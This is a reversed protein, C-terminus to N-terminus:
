HPSPTSSPESAPRSGLRSGLILIASDTVRLLHEAMREELLPSEGPIVVLGARESRVVALFKSHDEPHIARFRLHLQGFHLDRALERAFAPDVRGEPSPILLVLHKSTARALRAALRGAAIASSSGDYVVLVPLKSSISRHALLLSCGTGAIAARATSGLNLARVPSWGSRGLTLLDAEAAALLVEAPVDGRVIRFSWRVKAHEAALALERRAREAQARWEREMRRADLSEETATPYLLRTAAPTAALRLLHIDEVFLGALEAEMGAALAVAAQLAALSLPSADLAVVIRRIPQDAAERGRDQANM